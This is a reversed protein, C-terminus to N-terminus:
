GILNKLTEIQGVPDKGITVQGTFWLGAEEHVRAVLDQFRRLGKRGTKWKVPREYAFGDVALLLSKASTKSTSVSVNLGDIGGM